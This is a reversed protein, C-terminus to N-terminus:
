GGGEWLPRKCVEGPIERALRPVGMGSLRQCLAWWLAKARADDVAFHAAGRVRDLQHLYYPLVKCDLLKECLEALVEVRDNIGALLVGQQLLPIGAGALRGLAAAVGADLEGPHNAHIVLYLPRRGRTLAALLGEGVREPVAVPFRTHIRIRALHPLKELREILDGLRDDGLMLPDGGSLIVEKLDPRAALQDLARTPDPPGGSRPRHRRFCFRCHLPCSESVLLLARGPYKCLLGPIASTEQLPDLLYGPPSEGERADPLIQRLLPDDADGPTLRALFSAPAKVPFEAMVGREGESPARGALRTFLTEGGDAGGGWRPPHNEGGNQTSYENESQFM